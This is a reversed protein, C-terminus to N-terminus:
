SEKCIVKTCVIKLSLVQKTSSYFLFSLKSNPTSECKLHYIDSYDFNENQGFQFESVEQFELVVKQNSKAAEYSNHLFHAKIDCLIEKKPDDFPYVLSGDKKNLSRAKIFVIKNLSADHFFNSHKILLNVEQITKLISIKM